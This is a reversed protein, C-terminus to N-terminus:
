ENAVRPLSRTYSIKAVGDSIRAITTGLNLIPTEKLIPKLNSRIDIANATTLPIIDSVLGILQLGFMSVGNIGDEYKNTSVIIISTYGNALPESLLRLLHHCADMLGLVHHIAHMTIRHHAVGGITTTDVLREIVYLAHIGRFLDYKQGGDMTCLEIRVLAIPLRTLIIGVLTALVEISIYLRHFLSAVEPGNRHDVQIGEASEIGEHVLMGLVELAGRVIAEMWVIIAM